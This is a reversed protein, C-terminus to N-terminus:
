AVESEEIIKGLTGASLYLFYTEDWTYTDLFEDPTREEEPANELWEELCARAITFEHCYNKDDQPFTCIDVHDSTTTM